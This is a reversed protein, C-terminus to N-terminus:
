AWTDVRSDLQFVQGSVHRMSNLFVIFRAADTTQNFRGLVHRGLHRQRDRQNLDRTMRTDLFGPLVVNVRINDPGLEVALSKALGCLGAKAAAYNTQGAVGHSGSHSGIFVLHGARGEARWRATVARALRQAATLHVAIVRDWDNEPMRALPGDLRMGANHILLDCCPGRAIWQQLSTQETVDLQRRTPADIQWGARDFEDQMARALDGGGGTILVRGAAAGKALRRLDSSQPLPESSPTPNMASDSM